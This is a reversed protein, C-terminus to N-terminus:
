LLTITNLVFCVSVQLFFNTCVHSLIHESLLWLGLELPEGFHQGRVGPSSGDDFFSFFDPQGLLSGFLGYTTLATRRSQKSLKLYAVMKNM